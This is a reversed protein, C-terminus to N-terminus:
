SLNFYCRNKRLKQVILPYVFILLDSLSYRWALLDKVLTKISVKLPNVVSIDSNINIYFTCELIIYSLTKKERNMVKFNDFRYQYDIRFNCRYQCKTANEKLINYYLKIM